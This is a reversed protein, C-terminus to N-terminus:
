KSVLLFYSIDALYNFTHGCVIWVMSLAKLGNLSTFEGANSTDM